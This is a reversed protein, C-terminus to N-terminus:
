DYYSQTIEFSYSLDTSKTNSPSIGLFRQLNSQFTLMWAVIEAIKGLFTYSYTWFIVWIKHLQHLGNLSIGIGTGSGLLRFGYSGLWIETSTTCCSALVLVKQLKKKQNLSIISQVKSVCFQKTQIPLFQIWKWCLFLHRVDSSTGQTCTFWIGNITAWNDQPSFMM